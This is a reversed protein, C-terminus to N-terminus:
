VVHLLLNSDTFGLLIISLSKQSNGSRAGLSHAVSDTGGREITYGLTAKFPNLLVFNVATPADGPIVSAARRVAPLLESNFTTLKHECSM